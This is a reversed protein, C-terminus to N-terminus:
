RGRTSGFWPVLLVRVIPRAAVVAPRVVPYGLDLGATPQGPRTPALRVGVGVLGLTVADGAATSAPRWRRSVAGFAAADLVLTLTVPRLHRSRELSVAGAGRALRLAGPVVFATPDLAVFARADPDPRVRREAGVRLTWLGTGRGAGRFASVAGRVVAAQVGGGASDPTTTAYGGAWLDGAVASGRGPRWVRGVWGDVRAAPWRAAADRGGGVVV